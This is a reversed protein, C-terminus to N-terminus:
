LVYVTLFCQVQPMGANAMLGNCLCKRGETAALDGDKKVASCATLRRTNEPIVVIVTHMHAVPFFDCQIPLFLFFFRFDRCHM